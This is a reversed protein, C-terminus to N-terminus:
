SHYPSETGPPVGSRVLNLVGRQPFDNWTAARTAEAAARADVVRAKLLLASAADHDNRVLEAEGVLAYARWKTTEACAQAAQFWTRANTADGLRAALGALTVLATANRPNWLVSRLLRKLASELDDRDIDHNSLLWNGASIRQRLTEPEHDMSTGPGGYRAALLPRRIRNNFAPWWAGGAVAVLLIGALIGWVLGRSPGPAAPVQIAQPEGDIIAEQTVGELVANISQKAGPTLRATYDGRLEVDANSASELVGPLTGHADTLRLERTELVPGQLFLTYTQPTLPVTLRANRAEVLLEEAPGASTGTQIGAATDDVGTHIRRGNLDVTWEWATLAVDGEIVLRAPACSSAYFTQSTQVTIDPRNQDVSPSRSVSDQEPRQLTTCAPHTVHVSPPHEPDLPTIWLHLMPRNEVGELALEGEHLPERRAGADFGAARMPARYSAATADPSELHFGPHALPEDAAFHDIFLAVLDGTTKGEAPATISQAQVEGHLTAAQAPTALLAVVALLTALHRLTM